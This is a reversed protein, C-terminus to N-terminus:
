FNADRYFEIEKQTLWLLGKDPDKTEENLEECCQFASSLDMIPAFSFTETDEIIPYQFAMLVRFRDDKMIM